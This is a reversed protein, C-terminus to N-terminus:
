QVTVAGNLRRLFYIKKNEFYDPKAEKPNFKVPRFDFDTM